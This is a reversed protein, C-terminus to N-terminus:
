LLKWADTMKILAETPQAASKIGLQPIRKIEEFYLMNSFELIHNIIESPLQKIDQNTDACRNISAFVFRSFNNEAQHLHNPHMLASQGACTLPIFSAYTHTFHKKYGPKISIKADRPVFFTTTLYSSTLLHGNLVVQPQNFRVHTISTCAKYADKHITTLTHPFEVAQLSSCDSFAQECITELHPPLTASKLSTCGSFAHKGITKVKQPINIKKLNACKSFSLNGIVSLSAPLTIKKLNQCGYFTLSGIKTLGQPLKVTILGTCNIFM